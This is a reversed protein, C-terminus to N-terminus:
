LYDIRQLLKAGSLTVETTMMLLIEDRQAFFQEENVITSMGFLGITVGLPGVSRIWVRMKAHNLEPMVSLRATIRDLIQPVKPLDDIDVSITEDILRQTFRSKNLVVAKVFLANPVYTLQTAHFSLVTQYWGISQVLGEIKQDPLIVYEGVRFPRTIHIMISGFFNAIVEQAAFALALGSVGGFALLTTLSVGLADLGAMILIIIVLASILKAILVMTDIELTSENLHARSIAKALISNKFRFFAWGISALAVLKIAIKMEHKFLDSLSSDCVVDIGQMLVFFWVFYVLPKLCATYIAEFWMSHSKQFIKKIAFNLATLFLYAGGVWLLVQLFWQLEGDALNLPNWLFIHTM